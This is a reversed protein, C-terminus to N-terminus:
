EHPSQPLCTHTSCKLAAFPTHTEQLLPFDISYSIHSDVHTSIGGIFYVLQLLSKRFEIEKQLEPMIDASAIYIFGGAAFALLFPFFAEVSALIYTLVATGAAGAILLPMPM